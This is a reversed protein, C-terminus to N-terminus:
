PSPERYALSELAAELRKVQADKSFREMGSAAAQWADLFQESNSLLQAVRDRWAITDGAAIMLRQQYAVAERLGGIDSVLLWKGAALAEVAVRGFPEAWLSPVLILDAVTCFEEEIDCWGVFLVNDQEVQDGPAIGPYGVIRFRLNPFDRALARVVQIGKKNSTGVMSVTRIGGVFPRGRPEVDLPPFIVSMPVSGPVSKECYEAMFESNPLLMDAKAVAAPGFKGLALRKIWNKLWAKGGAPKEFNEYARIFVAVPVGFAKGLRLAVGLAETGTLLVDPAHASCESLTALSRRYLQWRSLFWGLAGSSSGFEKVDVGSEEFAGIGGANLTIVSVEHGLAALGELLSKNSLEGGGVNGVFSVPRYSPLIALIRM